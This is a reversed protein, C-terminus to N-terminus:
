RGQRGGRACAAPEPAGELEGVQKRLQGASSFTRRATCLRAPHPSTATEFRSCADRGSRSPRLPGPVPADKPCAGRRASPGRAHRGACARLRAEADRMSGFTRMNSSGVAPMLTSSTGVTSSRMWSMLCRPSAVTRSTSCLISTTRESASRMTTSCLPARTASPSGASRSRRASRGPPRDRRPPQWTLSCGGPARPRACAYRARGYGGRRRNRTGAPPRVTSSPRLPAPLVVVSRVM